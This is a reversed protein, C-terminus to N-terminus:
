KRIVGEEKEQGIGGSNYTVVIFNSPIVMELSKIAM